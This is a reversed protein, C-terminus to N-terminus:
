HKANVLCARAQRLHGQEHEVIFHQIFDALAQRGFKPNVHEGFTKLDADSLKALGAMLEAHSTILAERLAPASDRGHDRVAALREADQITRGMSSGPSAAVRLVQRIFFRRLNAVHALVEALSWVGDSARHYLNQSDAQDLTALLDRQTGQMAERVAVLTVPESM